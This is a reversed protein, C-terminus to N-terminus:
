ESLKKLLKSWERDLWRQRADKDLHKAWHALTSRSVGALKAAEAQTAKGSQLLLLAAQQRRKRDLVSGWGIGRFLEYLHEINKNALVDFCRLVLCVFHLQSDSEHGDAGPLVGGTTWPLFCMFVLSAKSARSTMLSVITRSSAMLVLSSASRSRSPLPEHLTV